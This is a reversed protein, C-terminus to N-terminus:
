RNDANLRAIAADCRAIERAIKDPQAADWRALPAKQKLLQWTDLSEQYWSRAKRWSAFRSAESLGPQVALRSYTEGLASRAYALEPAKYYTDAQDAASLAELNRLAKRASQIGQAAKGEAALAKGISMYCKSVYRLVVVDHADSSALKQYGALAVQYHPLAQEPHGKEALYYGIGYEEQLLFQWVTANQPDSGLLRAMIDRAKSMLSLASDLDGQMYVAESMYDYVGALNTQVQVRFAPLGGVIGERIAASKRYYELSSALNGMDAMCEAMAFCALAFAEQAQPNDKKEAALREAVPYARHLVELAAPFDNTAGLGFGLKVYMATLAVRDDSSGRDDDALALRIRLAKRYSAIAGATDGLNAYRPNGQVDGVREYAAALERQLDPNDSAERSLSDLYQLARDVLLKRTVTSGPLDKISDHVEFILSNALKRVDTFRREARARQERAIEAQQRAIHAERITVLLAALLLIAFVATAAVATKHRAIFKSARYGATDQRATVPLNELHRRIDQAFQEVSSYRRLPEKRLAMLLINDLDGKLRRSIKDPDGEGAVLTPKRPPSTSRRRIAASPKEPESECVARAIEHLTRNTSGYPSCGTLLEYLVVGLSYVDSATTISEGKIQEPSAYGPTFARFQTMTQTPESGTTGEGPDLLKAIGFDLLRPVGDATVLINGPKLDRHVILRQHALQVASCVQLFLKLRDATALKQDDCYRDITKGEILEMVFYPVGEEATGGDLLRAINPHDLSALIQRENKFRNIVFSSDQGPRVLKLAVQKRYQDDARVARYVEGMGGVGILEVVQYPGFRRGVKSDRNVESQEFEPKALTNLFESGAQEHSALLSSVELHLEPDSAAIEGLYVPREEGPLHLVKDLIESVQEWREPKM